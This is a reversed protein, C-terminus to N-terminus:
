SAGGQTRPISLEQGPHILDPNDLQDRNAEYIRTWAGADGYERQAIASLTDGAQVTYRSAQADVNAADPVSSSGSRVNSFDAEPKKERSDFLGM